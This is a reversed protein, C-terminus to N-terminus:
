ISSMVSLSGTGHPFPSFYGQSPPSISGSVMQRCPTPPPHLDGSPTGKASHALSHSDLRLRLEKCFPPMAFALRLLANNEKSFPPKASSGFGPSSAM